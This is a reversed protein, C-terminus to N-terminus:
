GAKRVLETAQALIGAPDHGSLREWHLMRNRIWTMQRKAYRRTLTVVRAQAEALSLEGALHATLERAGIVKLGPARPPLDLAMVARVEALVGEGLMAEFRAAIRAALRDRAPTLTLAVADALPVPPAPTRRQWEALPVGTAELVEWARLLRAPNTRDLRAATQPDRAALRAAFATTGLGALLAEGRARIEAPIPPIPALGETLAAFYLGTGGTIIPRLGRSRCEALVEDLDRLWAGVSYSEGAGV